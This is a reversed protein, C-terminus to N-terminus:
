NAQARQAEALIRKAEDILWTRLELLVRPNVQSVLGANYRRFTEAALRAGDVLVFDVNRRNASLEAHSFDLLNAALAYATFNANQTRFFPTPDDAHPEHKTVLHNIRSSVEAPLM